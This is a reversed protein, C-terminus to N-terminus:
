GPRRKKTWSKGGWLRNRPTNKKKKKQQRTEREVIRSTREALRENTGSTRDNGGREWNKGKLVSSCDNNGRSAKKGQAKSEDLTPFFVCEGIIKRKIGVVPHQQNWRWSSGKNGWVKTHSAFSINWSTGKGGQL